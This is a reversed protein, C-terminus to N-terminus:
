PMYDFFSPEIALIITASMTKALMNEKIFFNFRPKNNWRRLREEIIKKGFEQMTILEVFQRHFNLRIYKLYGGEMLKWILNEKFETINDQFSIFVHRYNPFYNEVTNKTSAYDSRDITSIVIGFEVCCFQVSTDKSPQHKEFPVKLARLMIEINENLENLLINYVM